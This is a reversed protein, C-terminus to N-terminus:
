APLCHIDVKLQLRVTIDLYKDLFTRHQAHVPRFHVCVDSCLLKRFGCNKAEEHLTSKSILARVRPIILPSELTGSPMAGGGIM